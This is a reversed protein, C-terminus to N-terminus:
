SHFAIRKGQCGRAERWQYWWCLQSPHTQRSSNIKMEDVRWVAERGGRGAWHFPVSNEWTNNVSMTRCRTTTASVISSEKGFIDKRSERGGLPIFYIISYFFCFIFISWRRVCGTQSIESVWRFKVMSADDVSSTSFAPSIRPQNEQKRLGPIESDFFTFDYRLYHSDYWRALRTCKM